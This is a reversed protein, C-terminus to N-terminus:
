GNVSGCKHYYKLKKKSFSRFKSFFCSFQWKKIIKLWNDSYKWDLGTYRIGYLLNPLHFHVSNWNYFLLLIPLASFYWASIRVPFVMLCSLILRCLIRIIVWRVPVDPVSFDLPIFMEDKRYLLCTAFDDKKCLVYVKFQVYLKVYM